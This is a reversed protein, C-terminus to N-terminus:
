EAEGTDEVAPRQQRGWTSSLVNMRDSDLGTKTVSASLRGEDEVWSDVESSLGSSSWVGEGVGICECVDGMRWVCEDFKDSDTWGRGEELRRFLWVGGEEGM